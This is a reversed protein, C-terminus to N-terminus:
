NKTNYIMKQEFCLWFFHLNQKVPNINSIVCNFYSLSAAIPPKYLSLIPSPSAPGRHPPADVTVIHSHRSCHRSSSQTAQSPQHGSHLAVLEPSRDEGPPRGRWTAGCRRAAARGARVDPGLGARSIKDTSRLVDTAARCLAAAVWLSSHCGPSRRVSCCQVVPVRCSQLESAHHCAPGSAHCGVAECWVSECTTLVNYLAWKWMTSPRASRYLTRSSIHNGSVFKMFIIWTM